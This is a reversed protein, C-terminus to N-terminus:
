EWELEKFAVTVNRGQYDDFLKWRDRESQGVTAAAAGIEMGGKVAARTERLLVELYRDLDQAGAPWDVSVPGHGPVARHAAVAKLAALERQWGTLRGDLAPVREVFL